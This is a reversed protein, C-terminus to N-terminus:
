EIHRDANVIEDHPNEIMALIKGFPRAFSAHSPPTLNSAWVQRPRALLPLLLRASGASELLCESNIREGFGVVNGIRHGKTVEDSEIFMCGSRAFAIRSVRLLADTPTPRKRHSALALM